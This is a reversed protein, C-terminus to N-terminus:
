YNRDLGWSKQFDGCCLPIDIKANEAEELRKLTAYNKDLDGHMCSEVAIKMTIKQFGLYGFASEALHSPEALIM